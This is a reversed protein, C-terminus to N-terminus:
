EFLSYEKGLLIKAREQEMLNEAMIDPTEAPDAKLVDMLEDNFAERFGLKIYFYEAKATRHSLCHPFLYIAHNFYKKAQEVDMGPLRTYLKGLLQIPGGFDYTKDLSHICYFLSELLDKQNMRERVPKSFIYEGFNLGWLYLFPFVSKDANEIKNKLLHQGDGPNLLFEFSLESQNVNFIYSLAVLAGNLFLSDKKEINNEIYKGEFYCVRSFLIGVNKDEPRLKHAKSLFNRALIIKNPDARKEWNEKGKNILFNINQSIHDEQNTQSTTCSFLLIILPLIFFLLINHYKM